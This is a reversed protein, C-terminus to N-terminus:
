DKILRTDVIDEEKVEPIRMFEKRMLTDFKNTLDSIYTTGYIEPINFAMSILEEALPTIENCILKLAQAVTSQPNYDEMKDRWLTTIIMISHCMIAEQKPTLKNSM